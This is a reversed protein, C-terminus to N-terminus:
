GKRAGVPCAGLPGPEVRCRVGLAHRERRVGELPRGVPEGVAGLGRRMEEVATDPRGHLCGDNRSLLTRPGVGGGVSPPACGAKGVDGM